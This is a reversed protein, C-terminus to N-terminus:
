APHPRDLHHTLMARTEALVAARLAAQEGSMAMVVRILQPVIVALRRPQARPLAPSAGAFLAAIQDRRRQTMRRKWTDDGPLDILVGYVPHAALFLALEDFLADAIAAARWGRTREGLADLRASLDDALTTLMAQALAPKTPFFLYLSGISAGARSAIETMTTANYGKEVFLSSAAAILGAVRVRGRQRQPM